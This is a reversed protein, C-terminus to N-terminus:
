LIIVVILIVMKNPRIAASTRSCSPIMMVLGEIRPNESVNRYSDTLSVKSIPKRLGDFVNKVIIYITCV